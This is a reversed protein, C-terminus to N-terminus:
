KKGKIVDEADEVCDAICEVLEEACDEKASIQAGLCERQIDICHDIMEICSNAKKTCVINCDNEDLCTAKQICDICADSCTTADDFCLEMEHFCVDAFPCVTTVVNLCTANHLNCERICSGLRIDEIDPIACSFVCLLLLSVLVIIFRQM